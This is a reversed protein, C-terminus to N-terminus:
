INQRSKKAAPCFVTFEDRFCRRVTRRKACPTSDLTTAATHVTSPRFAGKQQAVLWFPQKTQPNKAATVSNQGYRRRMLTKPARSPHCIVAFVTRMKKYVRNISFPRPRRKPLEFIEFFLRRPSRCRPGEFMVGVCIKSCGVPAVVPSEFMVDVCSQEKHTARKRM